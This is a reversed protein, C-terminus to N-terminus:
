KLKSRMQAKLSLDRELEDLVSNVSRYLDCVARPDLKIVSPIDACPRTSSSSISIIANAAPTYTSM